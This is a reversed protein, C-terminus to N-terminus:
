KSLTIVSVEVSPFIYIDRRSVAQGRHSVLQDREMLSFIVVERWLKGTYQCEKHQPQHERHELECGQIGLSPMEFSIYEINFKGM